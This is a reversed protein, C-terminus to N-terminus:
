QKLREEHARRILEEALPHRSLPWWRYPPSFAIERGFLCPESLTLVIREPNVFLPAEVNIIHTIPFRDEQDGNRVVIDDNEIWVEDVLSFVLRRMVLYGFAAMGLPILLTAPSVQQQVVGPIWVLTFLGLFGFWIVPFAKKYWWTWTSSIRRM